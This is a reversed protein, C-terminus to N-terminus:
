HTQLVQTNQVLQLHQWYVYFAVLDQSFPRKILITNYKNDNRELRPQFALFISSIPNPTPPSLGSLLSPFSLAPFPPPEATLSALQCHRRPPLLPGLRSRVKDRRNVDPDGSLPIIHPPSRFRMLGPFSSTKVKASCEEWWLSDADLRGPGPAMAKLQKSLQPPCRRWWVTDTFAFPSTKSDVATVSWVRM